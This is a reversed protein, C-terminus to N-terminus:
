AQVWTLAEWGGGMTLRIEHVTEVGDVCLWFNVDSGPHKTPQQQFGVERGAKVHLAIIERLKDRPLFIQVGEFTPNM